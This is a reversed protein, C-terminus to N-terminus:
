ACFRRRDHRWLARLCRLSAVRNADVDVDPADLRVLRLVEEPPAFVSNKLCVVVGRHRASADERIVAVALDAEEQGEDRM